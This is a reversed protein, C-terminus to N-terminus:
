IGLEKRVADRVSALKMEREPFTKRYVEWDKGPSIKAATQNVLQGFSEFALVTQKECTMQVLLRTEDFASSAKSWKTIREHKTEAWGPENEKHEAREAQLVSDLSLLGDEVDALRRTAEFLVDRKLEWRKQRDWMEGSIKAEIEKTAATVAQVQDVLKDIDEHTAFNEGKKKLYAGFWAGGFSGGLTVLLWAILVEVTLLGQM